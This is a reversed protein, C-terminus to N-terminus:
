QVRTTYYQVSCSSTLQSLNALKNHPLQPKQNILKVCKLSVAETTGEKLRCLVTDKTSNKSQTTNPTTKLTRVGDPLYVCLFFLFVERHLTTACLLEELYSETEFMNLQICTFIKFQSTLFSM